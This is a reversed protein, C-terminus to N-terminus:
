KFQGIFFQNNEDISHISYRGISSRLKKGLSLIKTHKCKLILNEDYVLCEYCM